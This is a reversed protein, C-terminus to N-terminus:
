AATREEANEGVMSSFVGCNMLLDNGVSDITNVWDRIEPSTSALTMLQEDTIGFSSHFAQIDDTQMTIMFIAVIVVIIEFLVRNM